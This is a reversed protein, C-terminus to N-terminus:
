GGLGFAKKEDVVPKPEFSEFFNRTGVSRFRDPPSIVALHYVRRDVVTLYNSITPGKDHSKRFRVWPAGARKGRGEFTVSVGKVPKESAIAQDLIAQSTNLWGMREPLDVFTVQYVAPGAHCTYRHTVLDGTDTAVTEQSEDVPGPMRVTFRGEDSVFTPM